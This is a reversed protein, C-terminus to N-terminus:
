LIEFKLLVFEANVVTLTDSPSVVSGQTLVVGNNRVEVNSPVQMLTGMYIMNATSVYSMNADIRIVNETRGKLAVVEGGEQVIIEANDQVTIMNNVIHQHKMGVKVADNGTLKNQTGLFETVVWKGLTNDYKMVYQLREDPNEPFIINLNNVIDNSMGMKSQMEQIVTRLISFNENYVSRINDQSLNAPCEKIERLKRSTKDLAM